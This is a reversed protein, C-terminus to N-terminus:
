PHYVEHPEIPADLIELAREQTLVGLAVFQMVGARTEPRQPNVFTAKAAREVNVQVALATAVQEPTMGPTVMAKQKVAIREPLTFRMDFAYNSLFPGDGDPNNHAPPQPEPLEPVEPPPPTFVAGDYSWGIGPQPDLDTIDVGEPWTDEVTIVNTVLGDGILAYIRTM